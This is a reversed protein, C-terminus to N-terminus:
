RTGFPTYYNFAGVSCRCHGTTTQPKHNHGENLGPSASGCLVIHKTPVCAWPKRKVSNKEYVKYMKVKPSKDAITRKEESYHTQTQM